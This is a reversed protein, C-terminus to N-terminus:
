NQTFFLCRNRVCGCLLENEFATPGVGLCTSFQFPTEYSECTNGCGGIQCEGDHACNAPRALQEDNL